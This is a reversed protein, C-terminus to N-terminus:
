NYLIHLAQMPFDHDNAIKYILDKLQYDRMLSVRFGHKESLELILEYAFRHITGIFAPTFSLRNEM